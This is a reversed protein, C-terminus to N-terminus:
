DCKLGAYPGGPLVVPTSDSTKDVEQSFTINLKFGPVVATQVKNLDAATPNLKTEFIKNFNRTMMELSGQAAYFTRGEATENGVAAAEAATRSLALAVFVSILALIFVAIVLLRVERIPTTRLKQYIMKRLIQNKRYENFKVQKEIQTM